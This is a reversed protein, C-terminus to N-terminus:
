LEGRTFSVFNKLSRMASGSRISHEAMDIGEAFSNAINSIYLGAGANLVITQKVSGNESNLARLVKDKSESADVVKIEEFYKQRSAAPYGFEKPDFTEYNIIGNRLEAYSTKGELSIEDMGNDASVVLAQSLGMLSLSEIFPKILAKDSVGILQYKINTPNALPGLMNFLTRIGIEYRAQGVKEWLTHFNPSLFFGVGTRHLGEVIKDAPLDMNVGFARLLDASGSSSSIAGSGHKAVYGGAGAIVFMASTSINFTDRCDAGTGCIDMLHPLDINVHEIIAKMRMAASAIELATEGKSKLAVLFASIQAPSMRDSDILDIVRHMQNESLDIKALLKELFEQVLNPDSDHHNGM